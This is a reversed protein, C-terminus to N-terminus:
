NKFLRNADSVPFLLSDGTYDCLSLKPSQKLISFLLFFIKLYDHLETHGIQTSVRDVYCQSWAFASTLLCLNNFLLKRKKGTDLCLPQCFSRLRVSLNHGAQSPIAWEKLRGYRYDAKGILDFGRSAKLAALAAVWSRSLTVDQPIFSRFSGSAKLNLMVPNWFLPLLGRSLVHDQTMSESYTM